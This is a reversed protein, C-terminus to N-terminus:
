LWSRFEALFEFGEHGAEEGHQCGVPGGCLGIPLPSGKWGPGMGQTGLPPAVKMEAATKGTWQSEEPSWPLPKECSIHKGLRVAALSSLTPFHEPVLTVLRTCSMDEALLCWARLTLSILRPNTWIFSIVCCFARIASSDESALRLKVASDSFRFSVIERNLSTVLPAAQSSERTDITLGQLGDRCSDARRALSRGFLNYYEAKMLVQPDPPSLSGTPPLRCRRSM